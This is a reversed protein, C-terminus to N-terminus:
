PIVPQRTYPLWPRKTDYLSSPARKKIRPKKCYRRFNSTDGPCFWTGLMKVKTRNVPRHYQQYQAPDLTTRVTEVNTLRGTKPEFHLIKLEYVRYGAGANLAFFCTLVGVLMRKM